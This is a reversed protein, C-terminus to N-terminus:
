KGEGFFNSCFIPFYRILELRDKVGAEEQQLAAFYEEKLRIATERKRKDEESEEEM